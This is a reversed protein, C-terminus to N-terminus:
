LRTRITKKIVLWIEVFINVNLLKTSIIYVIVGVLIKLVTAYILSYNYNSVFIVFISMVISAAVCKIMEMFEIKFNIKKKIYIFKVFNTILESIVSAVAAGNYSYKPILIINLIVNIISAIISAPLMVQENKTSYVLQYCYLDGISRLVVLVSFIRIVAATPYFYEGFLLSVLNDAVLVVGVGMPISIFCLIEFGKKLLEFMKDKDNEYYYSLRPLFTTTIATSVILLLNLLKIGYTYYGVSESNSFAGLMSIDIKSYITGFFMTFAILMVPKIHKKLNLNKFTFKIYNRSYIINFIYNGGMSISTILAYLVYDNRDKVFILLLILSVIKIVISRVTIYAYEEIGQFFWDINIYNLLVTIGCACSLLWDGSYGKNYFVIIIYGLIAITTSIINIVFLESFLTDEEKKNGRVKSIERIGYAPLGLSAFTVFYSAVNQVYSVKGVGEPLLVRSIYMSTILPFLVNSVTYIINFISNKILSKKM